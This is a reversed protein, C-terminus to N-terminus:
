KEKKHYEYKKVDRKLNSSAHAIMIDLNREESM